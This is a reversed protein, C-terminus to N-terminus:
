IHKVKIKDDIPLDSIILFDSFLEASAAFGYDAKACQQILRIATFIIANPTPSDLSLKEENEVDKM